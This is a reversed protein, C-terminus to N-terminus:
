VDLLSRPKVNDDDDDDGHGRDLLPGSEIDGDGPKKEDMRGPVETILLCIFAGVITVAGSCWWPLGSYGAKLGAAYLWGSITPGFARSLSATSAAVGNIVGLSLSTPAANTLLIANSPYAMTSYTCKWVIAVVIGVARLHNGKPLLVIYPTLLYLMFYTLALFQFLRLPGMKRVAWPFLVMTSLMAYCGQVSMIIGVTSTAYGFGDAFQFPLHTPMNQPETSLFVPLLQDYTM